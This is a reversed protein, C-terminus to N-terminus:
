APHRAAQALLLVVRGAYRPLLRLVGGRVDQLREERPVPRDRSRVRPVRLLARPLYTLVLVLSAACLHELFSAVDRLLRGRMCSAGILSSCRVAHGRRIGGELWGTGAALHLARDGKGDEVAALVAAEGKGGSGMWRAMKKLRSLNGEAAARLLAEERYQKGMAKMEM